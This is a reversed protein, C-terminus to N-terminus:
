RAFRPICRSSTATSSPVSARRIRCESRGGYYASMAWGLFRPDWRQRARPARIGMAKLYSRGITAPSFAKSAQLPVPHRMFEGLTAECLRETAHVDERCYEVYERIIKGHEVERKTYPVGFAECASELTHGRDTLAFATTRLDHFDGRWRFTRDPETEGGGPIQDALDTEYPARFGKLARKSDISKLAIRPHHRSEPSGGVRQGREWVAFSFGGAYPDIRGRERLGRGTRAEAARWAIRSIDFPSNFCVVGARLKWAARWFTRDLFEKFGVTKLQPDSIDSEVVAIAALRQRDLEAMVAAAEANWEPLDDPYFVGEEVCLLRPRAPDAQDTNCLRWCGFLLRQATDTTTETDFILWNRPYREV